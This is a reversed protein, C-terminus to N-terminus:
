TNLLLRSFRAVQLSNKQLGGLLCASTDSMKDVLGAPKVATSAGSCPVTISINV